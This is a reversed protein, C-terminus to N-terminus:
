LVTPVWTTPFFNMFIMNGNNIHSICLENGAAQPKRIRQKQRDSTLKLVKTEFFSINMLFSNVYLM